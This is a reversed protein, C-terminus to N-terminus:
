KKVPPKRGAPKRDFARVLKALELIEAKTFRDKAPLMATGPVGENITKVIAPITSGHKWTGSTLDSGPLMGKGEPGHCAQCTMRYNELAKAAAASKGRPAKQPAGAVAAAQTAGPAGSVVGAALLIMAILANNM